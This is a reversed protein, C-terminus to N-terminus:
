LTRGKSTALASDFVSCLRRTMERAIYPTVADWNTAPIQDCSCDFWRSRIQATCRDLDDAGTGSFTVSVGANTTRMVDVVSSSEHFITLLPKRALINPYIKSATYGPDDTGPIVLADSELLLKLASFYPVRGTIEVVVDLVGCEQAIPEVRKRAKDAPAYDTGVFIMKVDNFRDPRESRAQQFATFLSRLAFQMGGNVVGVYCWNRGGGLLGALISNLPLDKAIEFDRDSVGFPITTFHDDELYPYRQQLMKPYAPSVCVTKAVRSMVKPELWQALLQNVRYKFRGGPPPPAGAQDYYDCLWPDQFDVVFPIRFKNQWRAGLAFVPFETTSIFVLDFTGRQLLRDGAQKLYLYSRIALSGLGCSRTNKSSLARVRHVVTDSPITRSLNEDMENEIYNPNVCLVEASWGFDGLHALAMRVRHHDAANIPAFRPSIILVNHKM